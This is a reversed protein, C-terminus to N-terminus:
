EDRIAEAIRCGDAHDQTDFNRCMPCLAYPHSGIRASWQVERLVERARDLKWMTRKATDRWMRMAHGFAAAESRYFKAALKWRTAWVKADHARDNAELMADAYDDTAGRSSDVHESQEALKDLAADLSISLAKRHERVKHLRAGVRGLEARALTLEYRTWAKESKLKRIEALMRARVRTFTDDTADAQVLYHDRDATVASLQERLRENDSRLSDIEADRSRAGLEFSVRGHSRGGCHDCQETGRLRENEALLERVQSRPIPKCMHERCSCDVPCECPSSPCENAHGCYVASRYQRPVYEHGQPTNHYLGCEACGPPAFRETM